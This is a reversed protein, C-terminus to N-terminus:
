FVLRVNPERAWIRGAAATDAFKAAGNDLTLVGADPTVGAVQLLPAAGASHGIVKLHAFADHVWNVAEAQKSLKQGAQDSVLVAVADFLVSPGGALQFDAAMVKGDSATAGGVKPAVIAVQGGENKVAAQLAAVAAADTGDDVLM